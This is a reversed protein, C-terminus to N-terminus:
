VSQALEAKHEPAASILQYSKNYLHSMQYM